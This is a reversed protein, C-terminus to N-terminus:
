QYLLQAIKCPVDGTSLDYQPWNLFRDSTAVDALSERVNRLRVRDKDSGLLLLPLKTCLM